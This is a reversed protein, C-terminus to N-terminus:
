ERNIQDPSRLFREFDLRASNSFAATSTTGNTITGTFSFYNFKFPHRAPQTKHFHFQDQLNLEFLICHRVLIYLVM